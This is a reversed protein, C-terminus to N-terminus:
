KPTERTLFGAWVCTKQKFSGSHVRKDVADVVRFLLAFFWGSPRSLQAAGASTYEGSNLGSRFPPKQKNVSSIVM